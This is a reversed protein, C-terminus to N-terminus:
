CDVGIVIGWAGEGFRIPAYIEVVMVYRSFLNIVFVFCSNVNESRQRRYATTKFLVDYGGFSCRVLGDYNISGVTEKWFITSDCRMIKLVNNFFDLRRARDEGVYVKETRHRASFSWQLILALGPMLDCIPNALPNLIMGVM